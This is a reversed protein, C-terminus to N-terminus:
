AKVINGPLGVRGPRLVVLKYYKVAKSKVRRGYHVRLKLACVTREGRHKIKWARSSHLVRGGGKQGTLEM